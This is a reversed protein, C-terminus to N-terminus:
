SAFAGLLIAGIALKDDPLMETEWDWLPVNVPCDVGIVSKDDVATRPSVHQAVHALSLYVVLDFYLSIEVHRATLTSIPGFLRDNQPVTRVLQEM